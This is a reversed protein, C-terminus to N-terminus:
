KEGLFPSPCVVRCFIRLGAVVVVADTAGVVRPRPRHSPRRTLESGSSCGGPLCPQPLTGGKLSTKRRPSMPM